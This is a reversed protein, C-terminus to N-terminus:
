ESLQIVHSHYKIYFHKISHSPPCFTDGGDDDDYLVSVLM